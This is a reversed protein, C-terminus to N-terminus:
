SFFEFLWSIDIGIQLMRIFVGSRRQSDRAGCEDKMVKWSKWTESSWTGGPDVLNWWTGGPNRGLLWCWLSRAARSRAAFTLVGRLAHSVCLNWWPMWPVPKKEEVQASNPTQNYDAYKFFVKIWGCFCFMAPSFGDKWWLIWLDAPLIENGGSHIELRTLETLTDHESTFCTPTDMTMPAGWYSWPKYGMSFGLCFISSSWQLGDM